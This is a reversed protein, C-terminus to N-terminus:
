TSIILINFIEIYYFFFKLFKPPGGECTAGGQPWWWPLGGGGGHVQGVVCSCVCHFVGGMVLVVVGVEVVM